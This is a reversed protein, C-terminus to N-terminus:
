AVNLDSTSSVKYDKRSKCFHNFKTGQYSEARWGDHLISVSAIVDDNSFIGVNMEYMTYNSFEPIKLSNFGKFYESRIYALIRWHKSDVLGNREM